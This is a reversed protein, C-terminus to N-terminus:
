AAKNKVFELNEQQATSYMNQNIKKMGKFTPPTRLNEFYPRRTYVIVGWL